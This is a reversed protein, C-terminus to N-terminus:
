KWTHVLVAYARYRKVNLDAHGRAAGRYRQWSALRARTIRRRGADVWQGAEAWRGHDSPASAGGTRRPARRPVTVNPKTVRTIRAPDTQHTVDSPTASGRYKCVTVAGRAQGGRAQAPEPGPSGPLSVKRPTTRGSGKPNESARVM